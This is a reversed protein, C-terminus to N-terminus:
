RRGHQTHSLSWGNVHCGPQAIISCHASKSIFSNRRADMHLPTSSHQVLDNHRQELLYVHQQQPPPQGHMGTYDPTMMPKMEELEEPDRSKDMQKMEAPEHHIWLDPPKPTIPKALQNAAQYGRCAM